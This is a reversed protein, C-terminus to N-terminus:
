RRVEYVVVDHEAFWVDAIEEFKSLGAEGYLQRERHGVYIYHVDYKDLLAKAEAADTTTYIRKVDDARGEYLSANNRWQHQHGPWGLVTPVGSSSSVRGFDSYDGAVAELIASGHPAEAQLRLIARHEAPRSWELHALGNLTLPETGHQGKSFAAAPTYYLSAALLLGFAAGLATHALRRSGVAWSSAWQYAAFASAISLLVWAQYYLKFVTNMRTQFLDGVFVLEPVTILVLGLTSLALAFVMPAPSKRLAHWLASYAGITVMVSLPLVHALRSWWDGVQGGNELHLFYWALYPLFGVLLALAAPLPLRVLNSTKWFAWLIFPLIVTLFLGWVIVFHVPRTTAAQVAHLGSFQSSFSLHYPLFFLFALGVVVAAFPLARAAVAALSGASQNFARLSALGLFAAAFVPLDWMNTFGVGGLTLGLLATIAIQPWRLRPLRGAHLRLPTMDRQTFFSLGLTLFLLVFPVSTVHAHLDGLIYSFAPFEQITYDIGQGDVFTNIVRTARWWWWPDDPRWSAAAGSGGQLGDIALWSWLGAPGTGAAHLLELTGELNSCVTLFLAALLGAAVAVRLRERRWRVLNCALGFAATGALAASTALALNYAVQTATGTLEAIAGAVWHGFYYYSVAEGRLWPDEPSGYFTRVSANLFGFDMPQETHSIGPDHARYATWGAFLLLFVLEVALVTKWEAKFFAAIRRRRCYAYAGSVAAMAALLLALTLQTSPLIHLQSLIWSIYGLLLLGLPKSVSYGRDPIRPLLRFLLPFATLGVVQVAVIWILTDM